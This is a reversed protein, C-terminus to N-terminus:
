RGAESLFYRALKASLETHVLREPHWQVALIFPLGSAEEREIAETVGNDSVAVARMGPATKEVAQHHYSNVDGDAFGTIRYLLSSTDVTVHHMCSVSEPPCRHMVEMDTDTPLDVWLTGGLAVNLIQEGRCIGFIPM